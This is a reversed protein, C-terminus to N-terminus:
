PPNIVGAIHGSGALMYTVPGGFLKAGKYVSIAPAIHDEKAAQFFAPTKIKSLNLKEGDLVMQAKALANDRYCKRLYFLHLNLPMRTTDSNWYLLDFPVPEKGMLYNNVVFSWILDNARLLNFTMAMKSGELVGGAERMQQEMSALQEDDVFVKLDGAQSFDVQAALFTASKIRDKYEGSAAIYALTAGLLTGAICYGIVNAQKQGTAKEVADLAAFIGGSMYDEFSKEALSPDPNVWSVIFVTHGQEVAWKVFSNKPQLDLIYFKNIWPPFILLPTEYATETAPTYQLLEFLENRFVVKGPTTAIDRGLVFGDTTQRISLSGHGRDLDYLLNDLGRVLNEGNTSLTERLVEPNTLVFNTPSIADAFQRAYFAARAHVDPDMGEVEAVTRQLWNATLLYSQKIFDFVQNEQWDKDRFRRDGAHPEVLPEVTRGMARQATRQWLELYDKWLTFQAELILRPNAAMQKMLAMFAGSINLPDFPEHSGRAAQRQLFEFLLRQSKTAVRAMNRGFETPDGVHYGNMPAPPAMDPPPKPGKAEKEAKTRADTTRAM